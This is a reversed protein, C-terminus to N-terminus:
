YRLTLGILNFALGFWVVALMAGVLTVSWLKSWWKAGSTFVLKANWITVGIGAICLLGVIHLLTLGGNLRGDFSALNSLGSQVVVMWGVLFTLGLIAVVRVLRHALKALGTRDLPARYYRRTLAGVPWSVVAAILIAITVLMLPKIWASSRSAPVPVLVEIGGASDFGLFRIKGDEIRAALREHGGVERWVYPAVERWSKPEGNAGTLHPIVLTGDEKAVVQTQGVLSVVNFFTTEARRSTAYLGAVERAHEVATSTAPENPVAAPFYRDAFLEFLADRLRYAAGEKGQSNFSMFLGVGDDAFLLMDSHFFQTDGAHGIVRRGNRSRDFFGLSNGHTPPAAQFMSRYMLRATDPGLLDPRAGSELQLHAIMFRAMDAGSSTLSGAPAPGVLEFYGAPSSGRRYGQSLDASLAQPVPQRFTSRKMDLPAFVHRDLYDDFDEGSVRQVVYGALAVCYNCYSPVEGPPFIPDPKTKKVFTELNPLTDPDSFMLGHLMEEYGGTHTILNRVTVPKGLTPVKFDLYQNVDADLDIKGAEVQQMVATDTVLKAVSGLRFLTREPDVPTQTTVDAYGYGKQALVEGDKVVVVVAGAIDGSRLANPMLGDLWAELDARELPASIAVGALLLNLFMSGVFTALRM